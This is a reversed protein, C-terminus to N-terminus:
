EVPQGDVLIPYQRDAADCRFRKGATINPDILEAGEPAFQVIYSKRLRNTLNPGTAHPTLSSFVVIGGARVPAAIADEPEGDVCNWGLDTMEHAVTGLHHRGPLVWPCGNEEDADTLAVWCTLYQQPQIFTYGNDQHWPFPSATGPKKYVAQDWYLRVNAGLLDHALDCFVASKTFAKARPSRTVLHTTFTIEGARAIFAKGGLKDRLIEEVMAEIPDIEETLASITEADFADELVFFGLENYQEAQEESIRRFPGTRPEWAFSDNLPHKKV